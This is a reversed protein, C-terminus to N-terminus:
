ARQPLICRRGKTAARGRRAEANDHHIQSSQDRCRSNATAVPKVIRGRVTGLKLDEAVLCGKFIERTDAYDQPHWARVRERREVADRRSPRCLNCSRSKSTLRCINIEDIIIAANLELNVSSEIRALAALPPVFERRATGAM